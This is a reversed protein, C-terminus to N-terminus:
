KKPLLKTLNNIFGRGISTTVTGKEEFQFTKLTGWITVATPVIIGAATLSDRIWSHKKDEKAQEEKLALESEKLDLEAKKNDQDSELEKMKIVRDVLKTVGDVTAKYEDTGLGIKSLGELEDKIEEQLLVEIKESKTEDNM